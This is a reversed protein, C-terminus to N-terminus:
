WGVGLKQRVQATSFGPYGRYGGGLSINPNAQLQLVLERSLSRLEPPGPKRPIGAAKNLEFLDTPFDPAQFLDHEHVWKIFEEIHEASPRLAKGGEVLEMVDDFVSGITAIFDRIYNTFDGDYVSIMCIYDGILLFRAFHVTGVNDLGAFIEDVNRAIALAAKARGIASKDELPMLLNMMRQVNESPQSSPRPGGPLPTTRAIRAWIPVLIWTSLFKFLPNDPLGDVLRDLWSRENAIPEASQSFPCTVNKRGDASIEYAKGRVLLVPDESAEIGPTLHMPNFALHECNATQDEAVADITLTGMMIRIRHPPWPRSSDNFDDGAEGITMMLTFRAPAKRLDERLRDQLYRDIPPKDTDTSLVGDVPQWSFRVWRRAGDPAVVVFAHVAHYDARVYSVPAGITAVQFVALKAYDNQDAFRIAGANPSITEGPNPDPLPPTLCLMDLLKRWPSERTVPAPKAAIAFDLFTEPTPAFFEPLTMAILDTSADNALHFRTAMGRVDSWGDHVVACGSGNSFRVTVSIRGGQFHKAICYDCAVDSAEFYGTASIGIAHVPRLDAKGDPRRLAEVLKAAIDPDSMGM